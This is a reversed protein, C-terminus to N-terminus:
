RGAEAEAVLRERQTKAVDVLATGKEEAQEELKKAASRAQKRLQKAAEKAAAEAIANGEARQVLKEGQQKAEEKLAEGQAEAAAVLQEASKEAEAVLKDGAARAEDVLADTVEGVREKVEDSVADRVADALGPAGVLVTPQDYSGGVRVQLDLSGGSGAGLQILLDQAKVARVPVTLDLVLDLSRDLVGTNGSLTADNGGVSVTVPDIRAKGNEIRFGVEGKSFDLTTYRSNGLKGGLKEMFRPRMVLSRSRLLGASILTPLDPTLDPGLTTTLEFDTSFRGAANDVVPAIRRVTEFAAAIEGVEVDAIDVKLAVDARQDTPAVYSGNLGIRGGLMSFDLDQIRAAGDSLRLSGELDTLELDGYLVSDFLVDVGIDLDTPVALLSSGVDTDETEEPEGEGELWPNTDFRSSRVSIQGELPQDSFFWPVLNDLSGTGSLDSDGMTMSLVSLEASRPTLSGSMHSLKVPVPLEPDRYLADQLQFRGSATVKNVRQSEFDSVRGAVVVDLDLVGAYDVGDLPLAQGLKALDLRGQLSADVDPDSVPNRLKLSGALPSGAVSMRFSNLDLRVGDPDGGPHALALDLQIDTVATPLDPMQFSADTVTAQIDFSPLDDGEAPLVGKVKGELALAGATQLDAFDATYVGPVLSLIAGFATELAQVSLDLALDDGQPEVTGAFGLRLENLALNSQELDIRGTAQNYAVPIDAEVRVDKLWTVAGDRVTLSAISTHNDLTLLDGSVSGSGRHDLGDLDVALYGQSDDYRLALDDIRLDRLDLGFSSAEDPTAAEDDSDSPAIDWNARGEPDVRLDFRAGELGLKRIEYAEGGLLSGLGVVVRLEDVAVLEVGEFPEHGVVKVGRLALDPNPFSRLLSLSVGEISVTADSDENATELASALIRDQFFVPVVVLTVVLLVLLVALALALKRM